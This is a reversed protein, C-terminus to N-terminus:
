QLIFLQFLINSFLYGIQCWILAMFLRIISLNRLLFIVIINFLLFAIRFALKIKSKEEKFINHELFSFLNFLFISIGGCILLPYNTKSTFLHYSNFLICLIPVSIFAILFNTNLSNNYIISPLLGFLFIIASFSDNYFWLTSLGIITVKLMEILLSNNNIKFNDELDDYLKILGGSTFSILNILFSM